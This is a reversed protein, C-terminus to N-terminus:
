RGVRVMEEFPPPDNKQGLRLGGEYHWGPRPQPPRRRPPRIAGGVRTGCRVNDDMIRAAVWM